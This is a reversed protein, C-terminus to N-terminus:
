LPDGDHQAETRIFDLLDQDPEFWEGHLRFHDFKDHLRLELKQGGSPIHGLLVLKFPCGAQFTDMRASICAAHGIKIPGGIDAQIFYVSNNDFSKQHPKKATLWRNTQPPEGVRREIICKGAPNFGCRESARTASSRLIGRPTGEHFMGNFHTVTVFCYEQQEHPEILLADWDKNYVTLFDRPGLEVVLLEISPSEVECVRSGSPTLAEKM